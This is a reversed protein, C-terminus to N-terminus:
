SYKKAISKGFLAMFHTKEEKEEEEEEYVCMFVSKTDLFDILTYNELWIM